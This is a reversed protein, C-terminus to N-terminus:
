ALRIDSMKEKVQILKNVLLVSLLESDEKDLSSSHGETVSTLAEGGIVDNAPNLFIEIMHNLALEGWDSDHRCINFEKLADNIKNKYRFFTGRCFHYGPHMKAKLAAKETSELYKEAEELKGTRRCMDILYMLATYQNPNKELIQRYHFLASSFSGKQVMIYALTLIADDNGIDMKLMNACQNQASNTDGLLAYLNALGLMAKKHSPYHQVAENYLALAKEKNGQSILHLQGLEYCIDAAKEEAPQGRIGKSLISLQLDRANRLTETSKEPFGTATQISPQDIANCLLSEAENLRKLKFQLLALKYYDKLVGSQNFSISKQYHEIAENINMYADGLLICNELTPANAWIDAYCRAYAKRDNKYKLFIKAKEVQAALYLSSSSEVHSVVSLAADVEGAECLITGKVLIFSDDKMASPFLQSAEEILTLAEKPEKTLEKINGDQILAQAKVCNYWMNQRVEFNHSLAVELDQLALNAFNEKIHIQAMLIHAKFSTPDLKFCTNTINKSLSIEGCLYTLRALQYQADVFGPVAKCLAKLLDRFVDPDIPCHKLFDKTMELVFDPNIKIYYEISLPLTNMMELHIEAARKLYILQEALNQGSRSLLYSMLYPLKASHGSVKKLLEIQETADNLQNNQILCKINGELAVDDNANLELAKLFISRADQVSGQLYYTYGLESYVISDYLSIQKVKELIDSCLRLISPNRQAVRVLVGINKVFPEGNPELYNLFNEQLNSMLNHIDSSSQGSWLLKTFCLMFIAQVNKPSIRLVTNSIEALQDWETLQLCVQMKEIYAPIFSPNRAIFQNACDMAAAPNMKMSSLYILQGLSGEINEADKQLVREFWVNSKNRVTKEKSHFLELWGAQLYGLVGKQETLKSIIAKATDINGALREFSAAHSLCERSVSPDNLAVDFKAQCEAIADHDREYKVKPEIRLEIRLYYRYVQVKPTRSDDREAGCTMKVARVRTQSTDGGAKTGTTSLLHLMPQYKEGGGFSGENSNSFTQAMACDDFFLDLFASFEAESPMSGDPKSAPGMVSRLGMHGEKLHMRWLAGTHGDWGIPASRRVVQIDTFQGTAELVDAIQSAVRLNFGGAKMQKLFRDLYDSVFPTPSFSPYPDIEVLDIYGGPKLVRGLESLVLPWNAEPTIFFQAQEHVYDFFDDEFPLRGLTQTEAVKLRKSFNVFETDPWLSVSLDVAWYQGNPFDREMEALWIGTTSGAELVRLGRDLDERTVGAITGKFLERLLYYQQMSVRTGATVDPTPGFFRLLPDPSIATSLSPSRSSAADSERIATSTRPPRVAYADSIYPSNTPSPLPNQSASPSNLPYSRGNNLRQKTISLTNGM